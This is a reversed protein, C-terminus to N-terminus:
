KWLDPISSYDTLKTDGQFTGQVSSPTWIEWLKKGGIKPTEGTLGTCGAFTEQFVYTRYPATPTLGAFLNEPIEGTLGSCNKFTRQFLYSTPAGELGAFLKEPISGTLGSCGNFTDSFVDIYPMGRVGAFLNEPIEGTLRSCGNFLGSFAYTAPAGEIGAFLKEPISGTLNKCGSFTHWYMYSAPAGKIGAFLNEPIPGTLGTCNFFTQFFMREAPAGQVGAFLNEPISTLGTCDKFTDFFIRLAPAGNIGNFLTEPITKLDTNAEFSRYFKPQRGDDLTSFICGICGRMNKIKWTDDKAGDTFFQVDGTYIDSTYNTAKGGLIVEYNSAADTYTHSYSTNVLDTKNITQTQGDGWDVTFNGTAAIKFYFTNTNTAPRVCFHNEPCPKELQKILTDVAKITAVTDAAEQTAYTEDDGYHSTHEGNLKYNAIDVLTLLYKMNAAEKESYLNPSYPIDIDWKQKIYKHVYEVNVIEDARAPATGLMAASAVVATAFACGLFKTTNQYM